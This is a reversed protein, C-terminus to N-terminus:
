TVSSSRIETPGGASACRKFSRSGRTRASDSILSIQRSRISAILRAYTKGTGLSVPHRNKKRAAAVSVTPTTRASSAAKNHPAVNKPKIAYEKKATKNAIRTLFFSYRIDTRNSRTSYATPSFATIDMRADFRM